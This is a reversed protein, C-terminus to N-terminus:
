QNKEVLMFRQMLFHHHLRASNRAKRIPSYSAKSTSVLNEGLFDLGLSFEETTICFFIYINTHASYLLRHCARNFTVIIHINRFMNTFTESVLIIEAIRETYIPMM